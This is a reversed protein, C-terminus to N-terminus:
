KIEYEEDITAVLNPDHHKGMKKRAKRNSVTDFIISFDYDPPYLESAPVHLEVRKHNVLYKKRKIQVGVMGKDDTKQFVLGAEKEPHVIVSDGISFKDALGDGKHSVDDIRRIRIKKGRQIGSNIQKSSLADFDYGSPKQATNRRGYAVDHAKKIMEVPMGLRGAIYLACSEGAEGIELKYLPMLNDRDFTMKANVLGDTDRAFDKIEPYHTTAVVLCKTKVLESLIVTALGMGEAPDTGSGLEDLLVLSQEDATGLIKIIKTIHSSFTSLNEAISQGDGIDCLVMDYMGFVAREAPIHLGSQAMLSFLGVTKLVVTKGGTNPGTIVVGDAGHGERDNNGIRFDLPVVTDKGLLPHRGKEIIINKDASIVPPVARLNVSLKAKAFVFDLTEMAAINIKIQNLHDEVLATLRYLVKNIEIDEEIQLSSISAQIRGVSEPEIFYTGGSKSVDAVTGKIQSRFERKVALTFRGGRMVIFDESFCKSNSKLTSELKLRVQDQAHSIKRRINALASSARDDVMGGRICLDIEERLESLDNISYGIASVGSEGEETRKLYRKMRICTSIFQSVSALQDPNLVGDKDMLTIIKELEVMSALPPNGSIELIRKAQTTEDIHAILQAENMYPLLNILKQKIKESFAYGALMELIKDFELQTFTSNMM